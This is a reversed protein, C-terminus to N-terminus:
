QSFKTVAKSCFMPRQTSLEAMTVPPATRSTVSIAHGGSIREHPQREPAGIQEQLEENEQHHNRGDDHQQREERQHRRQAPDVM